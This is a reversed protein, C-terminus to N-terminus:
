PLRTEEDDKKEKAWPLRIGSVAISFLDGLAKQFVERKDGSLGRLAKLVAQASKQWREGMDALTKEEAAALVEYVADSFVRRDEPSLGKLWKRLIRNVELSEASLEPKEMFRRGEVQWSFASHQMIGKEDSEVVTYRKEQELLMGVVSFHPIYLRLRQRIRAYGPSDIVREDQGPGDFSVVSEIREQVKEPVCAGAYVALNGGKSHGCVTILGSVAKAARALYRAAQKQSPVPSEFSLNLDEKWGVLSDDTGRFAVLAAGGPLAFTMAGFQQQEDESLISTYNLIPLGSFRTCEPLLALLARNGEWLYGTQHIRKGEPDLALLARAAEGVTRAKGGPLCEGFSVYSLEALVLSDIDNLPDASLSLDGRWRLYDLMNAM